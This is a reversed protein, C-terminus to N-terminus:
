ELNNNESHEKKPPSNKKFANYINTIECSSWTKSFTKTGITPLNLEDLDISYKLVLEPTFPIKQEVSVFLAKILGRMTKINNGSVYCVNPYNSLYPFNMKDVSVNVVIYSNLHLYTYKQKKEDFINMFPSNGHSDADCDGDTIIVVKKNSIKEKQFLKFASDLNTSGSPKTYIIRLLNLIEGDMDKDSIKISRTTDHFLYVEQIRFIKVMLLTYLLGTEIPTDSMSYSIDLLLVVNKSFIDFASSDHFNTMLDKKSSEIMENLKNELDYDEKISQKLFYEYCEKRLDVGHIKVQIKKSKLSELYKVYGKVLLEDRDSLIDDTSQMKKIKKTLLQNSISPTQRIVNYILFIETEKNSHSGFKSGDTHIKQFLHDTLNIYRNFLIKIQRRVKNTFIFDGKKYNVSDIRYKLISRFEKSITNKLETGQKILLFFKERSSSSSCFLYEIRQWILDTEYSWHGSEFSLYKVLMPDYNENQNDHLFDFFMNYLLNGYIKIEIFKEDKKNMYYQIRHLHHFDKAYGWSWKLISEYINDQNEHENKLIIMSLYYLWKIGNGKDILRHYKLLKLFLEGNTNKLSVLINVIETFSELTTPFVKSNLTFFDCGYNLTSDFAICGNRNVISNSM